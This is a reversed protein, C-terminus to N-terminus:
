PRGEYFEEFLDKAIHKIDSTNDLAIVGQEAIWLDIAKTFCVLYVLDSNVDIRNIEM